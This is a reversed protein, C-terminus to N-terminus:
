RYLALPNEALIRHRTAGDEVWHELLDFLDGDNPMSRGNMQVHPWDSGWLLREPAHRVLIRAFPTLSAYPFDEDSCRMPGSMKVWTKGTDLMRLVTRFAPSDVGAHAEFAGFHDLVVPNPFALLQDAVEALHGRQLSQYQVHWGHDHVLAAVRSDLGPLHSWEHRPPGAFMRVGRVGVQRLRTIEPEDLDAPPLIIGRFRDGFRRLVSQIHRTNAGYGGASVIVAHQMGLVTQMQLYDEPLADDSVYPSSPDFPFEGQPGFLHIHCDWSGAPPYTRPTRPHPDPPQNRLQTHPAEPTSM